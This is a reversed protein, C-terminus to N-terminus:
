WVKIKQSQAPVGDILLTCLFVGAKASKRYNWECSYTGATMVPGIPLTAFLKGDLSVIRIQARSVKGSFTASFIARNYNRNVLFLKQMNKLHTPINRLSTTPAPLFITDIQSVVSDNYHIEWGVGPFGSKTVCSDIPMQDSTFGYWRSSDGLAIAQSFTDCGLRYTQTLCETTTPVSYFVNSVPAKTQDFFRVVYQTTYILTRTGINVRTTQANGENILSHASDGPQKIHFSWSLCNRLVPDWNSDFIVITNPFSFDKLFVPEPSLDAPRLVAIKNTNFIAKVPYVTTSSLVQLKLSLTCPFAINQPHGSSEYDLEIAWHASDLFQVESIFRSKYIPPPNGLVGITVNSTEIPNPYAGITSVRSENTLSHGQVVPRLPFRWVGNFSGESSDIVSITDYQALPVQETIPIDLISARTIVAIRSADEFLRVHYKKKLSAIELWFTSTTCPPTVWKISYSTNLEIYWQTPSQIFVESILPGVRSDIPNASIGTIILVVTCFFLQLKKM